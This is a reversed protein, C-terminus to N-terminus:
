PVREIRYRVISPVGDRDSVIGWLQTRTAAGLVFHGADPLQVRGIADGHEDLVLWSQSDGQERSALWITGDLGLRVMTVPQQVAPVAARMSREVDDAFRPSNGRGARVDRIVMGVWRDAEARTVPSGDIPYKRSLLTDGTRALVTVRMTAPKAVPDWVVTVYRSGDQAVHDLAKPSLPVTFNQMRGTTMDRVSITRQQTPTSAVIRITTANPNVLVVEERFGRPASPTPVTHRSLMSGDGYVALPVLSMSLVKQSGTRLMNFTRLLKRQGSVFTVRRLEPDYYWISDGVSGGNMSGIRASGGFEGPGSGRGGLDVLHRGSRDYFRVQYRARDAFAMQGARDVLLFANPYSFEERAGDIRM